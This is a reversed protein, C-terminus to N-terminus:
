LVLTRHRISGSVTGALVSLEFAATKAFSQLQVRELRRPARTWLYPMVLLLARLDLPALLVGAAASALMANRRVIFYRRWLLGRRLQPYRRVVAPANRHRLGLRLWWELGPYTVDHHVIAEGAFAPKWGSTVLSWGAATDEWGFGISEAFGDCELLAQRRILLNCSEFRWSFERVEITAAWPRLERGPEPITTGQVVGVRADEALPEVGARLWGLVPSCDSDTFAIVEAESLEAAENRLRGVTGPRSEVRVPVDSHRARERCAEATGDTSCNDLVLVDYSPYDLALLADLCRLMRERRDKVPVAVTVRPPTASV